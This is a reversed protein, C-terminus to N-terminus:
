SGRYTSYGYNSLLLPIHYHADPSEPIQFVIDVYPFFTERQMNSFYQLTNFRVKYLGPRLESTIWESSADSPNALSWEKVRGDANTYATAIASSSPSSLYTLECLVNAAPRGVTTDLIHCTIPSVSM